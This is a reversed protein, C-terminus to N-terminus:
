SDDVGIVCGVAGVTLLGFESIDLKSRVKGALIELGRHIRGCSKSQEFDICCGGTNELLVAKNIRDVTGNADRCCVTTRATYGYLM